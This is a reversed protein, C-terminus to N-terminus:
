LEGNQQKKIYLWEEIILSKEADNYKSNANPIWTIDGDCNYLSAKERKKVLTANIKVATKNNLTVM